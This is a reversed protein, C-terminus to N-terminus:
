SVELFALVLDEKLRKGHQSIIYLYELKTNQPKKQRRLLEKLKSGADILLSTNKETAPIRKNNITVRCPSCLM